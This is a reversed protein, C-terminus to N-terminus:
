QIDDDFPTENFLDKDGFAEFDTLDSNTEYEKQAFEAVKSLLSEREEIPLKMLDTASVNIRILDKEWCLLSKLLMPFFVSYSIDGNAGIRFPVPEMVIGMIRNEEVFDGVKFKLNM